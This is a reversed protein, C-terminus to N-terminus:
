VIIQCSDQRYKNDAFVLLIFLSRAAINIDVAKKISSIGMEIQGNQYYLLGLLTLVQSNQADNKLIENCLSVAETFKGVKGFELVSSIKDEVGVPM